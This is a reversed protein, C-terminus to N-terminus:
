VAILDILDIIGDGNNDQQLDELRGDLLRFRFGYDRPLSTGNDSTVASARIAGEYYGDTLIPVSWSATSSLPKYEFVAAAMDVAQGTQTSMALAVPAVLVNRDFVASIVFAPASPSSVTEVRVQEVAPAIQVAAQAVAVTEVPEVATEALMEMAGLPVIPESAPLEDNKRSRVGVYDALTIKGSGNVDYLVDYDPEGPEANNRSRVTVYDALTVKESQNVDGPLVNLRFQFGGGESGNGSPFASSGDAWEGDLRNGATDTVDDSLALLL